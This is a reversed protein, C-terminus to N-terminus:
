CDTRTMNSDDDAPETNNPAMAEDIVPIWKKFLKNEEMALNASDQQMKTEVAKKDATLKEKQELLAELATQTQRIQEELINLDDGIAAILKQRKPKAKKIVAALHKIYKFQHRTIMRNIEPTFGFDHIYLTVIVNRKVVFCILQDKGLYFESDDIQYIKDAQRFATVIQKYLREHEELNTKDYTEASNLVREKWRKFSHGSIIMMEGAKDLAASVNLYEHLLRDRETCLNQEWSKLAKFDVAKPRLAMYEQHTLPQQIKLDRTLMELGVPLLPEITLRKNRKDTLWYFIYWCNELQAINYAYFENYIINKLNGMEQGCKLQDILIPTIEEDLFGFNKAEKVVSRFVANEFNLKVVRGAVEPKLKAIGNRQAM